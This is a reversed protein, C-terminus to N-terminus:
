CSIAASKWQDALFAALLLMFVCCCCIIVTNPQVQLQELRTVDHMPRHNGYRRSLTQRVQGSKQELRRVSTKWDDLVILLGSVFNGVAQEGPASSIITLGLENEKRCRM